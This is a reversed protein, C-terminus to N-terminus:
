DRAKLVDVLDVRDLRRRASWACAVGAALVVGASLAYTGQDIVLPMRFQETDFGPTRVLLGALGRGAFLGMVVGLVLLVALEGVLIAAVERRRFGLVRLSALDRSREALTIRAANYLVGFAMALSFGITITLMTGLNEDLMTRVNALVADREVLGTILPTNEIAAHLADIQAGDVSLLAGNASETEGLWRCLDHLPAYAGIGVFTEALRAVPLELRRRRGELVEVEVRDGAGVGLLEGLKRSLILGGPALELPALDRDLLAVLESDPRWATIATTKRRTGAIFRVPATRLPEARRVGPLDLLSSLVGLDRPEALAVQVDDRKSLGYEVNLMFNISDLTFSNAIALATAAAIGAASLLARGPRRELERLVMRAATPVARDLGLRELLTARYVPPAPPRLAEAPPLRVVRRVSGFTGVGAAILAAVTGELVERAGLQFSLTPLRYYDGYMNTMWGGIQAGVLVGCLTGGFIVLGALEAYHWGVERDRYGLAKLAAIEPRQTAVLRGLVVNLLMASVALFLIPLARSFTQLQILENALFFASVQDERAVAGIGGYPELLEDVRSLVMPVRADPALRLSVDSFAGELDFAAALPARRLFLVGFRRDDPFLSGPGLAYTYEPANAVGVLRLRQLQGDMLATLSDGPHLGHAEAFAESVVAEDASEPEPLRGASLAIDNVAPRGRDPLSVLRASIVEDAGEVDLTAAAVVRTEVVVVGEIEALQRAVREPARVLTAFVDGFRTHAYYSARAELLSNMTSRMGVNIAVGCAVVLVIAVLQGRLRLADNLVKRHLARM